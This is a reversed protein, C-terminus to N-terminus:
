WQAFNRIHPETIYEGSSTGSEGGFGAEGFEAGRLLPYRCFRAPGRDPRSSLREWCRCYNSKTAQGGHGYPVRDVSFRARGGGARQLAVCFRRRREHHAIKRFTLHFGPKPTCSTLTSTNAINTDENASTQAAWVPKGLSSAWSTWPRRSSLHGVLTRRFRRMM